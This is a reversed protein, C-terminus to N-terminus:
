WVIQDKVSKHYNHPQVKRKSFYCFGFLSPIVDPLIKGLGLVSHRPQKLLATKATEDRQGETGEGGGWLVCVM